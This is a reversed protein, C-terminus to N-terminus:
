AIARTLQPKIVIPKERHSVLVEIVAEGREAMQHLDTMPLRCSWIEGAPLVHPLSKGQHPVFRQYGSWMQGESTETHTAVIDMITTPARGINILEIHCYEELERREGGTDLKTIKLVKSDHYVVNIKIRKRIQPGQKYWKAIDWVFVTTSLAAGWWAVYGIMEM